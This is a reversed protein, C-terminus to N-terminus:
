KIVVKHIYFEEFIENETINQFYRPVAVGGANQAREECFKRADEYNFYGEQSVKSIWQNTDRDWFRYEVIYVKTVNM